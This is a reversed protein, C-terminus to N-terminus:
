WANIPELIIRGKENILGNAFNGERDPRGYNFTRVGHHSPWFSIVMSDPLLTENGATDIIAKTNKYLVIATGESFDYAFDYKPEIIMKKTSDCYGWLNGKRYPILDPLRASLNEQLFLILIFFFFRKM